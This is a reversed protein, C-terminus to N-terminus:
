SGAGDSRQDQISVREGPEVSALADVITVIRLSSALQDLMADETGSIKQGTGLWGDGSAEAVRRAIWMLWRKVEQAEDYPTKDALLNAVMESHVLLYLRAEIIAGLLSVFSGRASRSGAFEHNRITQDMLIARILSNRQAAEPATQIRLCRRLALLERLKGV